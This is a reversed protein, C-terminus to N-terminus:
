SFASFNLHHLRCFLLNKRIQLRDFNNPESMRGNNAIRPTSSQKMAVRASSSGTILSESAQM